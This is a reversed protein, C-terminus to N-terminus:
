PGQQVSVVMQTHCLLSRPEAIRRGGRTRMGGLQRGLGHVVSALPLSPRFPSCLRQTAGRGAAPGARASCPRQPPRHTSPRPRRAGLRKVSAQEGGLRSNASATAGGQGRIPVVSQRRDPRRGPGAASPRRPQGLLRHRRALARRGSNAAACGSGRGAGWVRCSGVPVGFEVAVGRGALAAWTIHEDLLLHPQALHASPRECEFATEFRSGCVRQTQTHGNGGRSASSRVGQKRGRQAQNLQQDCRACAVHPSGTAGAM